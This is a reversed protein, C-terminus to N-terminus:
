KILKNDNEFIKIIRSDNRNDPIIQGQVLGPYGLSVKMKGLGTMIPDIVIWDCSSSSYCSWFYGSYIIIGDAKVAFAVGNLSHKLENIAKKAKDSIKFEYNKSNYSLFDSYSILPTTKTKITQEEIQFSNEVKSYSDILFLEVKGGSSLKDKGCGCLIVSLISIIVFYFFNRRM